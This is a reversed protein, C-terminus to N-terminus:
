YVGWGEKKEEGERGMCACVSVWRFTYARRHKFFDAQQIKVTCVAKLSSVNLQNEGNQLLMVNQCPLPHASSYLLSFISLSMCLTTNGWRVMILPMDFSPSLCLGQCPGAWVPLSQSPPPLSAPVLSAPPYISIPSTFFPLAAESSSPPFPNHPISFVATFFVVLPFFSVSHTPIILHPLHLPPPPPPPSSHEESGGM